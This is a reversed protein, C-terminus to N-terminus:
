DLKNFIRLFSNADRVTAFEIRFRGGRRSLMVINECGAKKAKMGNADVELLVNTAQEVKQQYSVSLTQESRNASGTGPNQGLFAMVLRGVSSLASGPSEKVAEAACMAKDGLTLPASVTMTRNTYLDLTGSTEEGRIEDFLRAGNWGM